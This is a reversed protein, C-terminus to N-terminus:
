VVRLVAYQLLGKGGDDPLSEQPIYCIATFELERIGDHVFDNHLAVEWYVDGTEYWSEDEPFVPM